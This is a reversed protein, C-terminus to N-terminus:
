RPLLAEWALTNERESLYFSCDMGEGRCGMAAINVTFVNLDMSRAPIEGPSATWRAILLSCAVKM